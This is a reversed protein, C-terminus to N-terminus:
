LYKTSRSCHRPPRRPSRARTSATTRDFAEKIDQLCPYLDGFFEPVYESRVGKGHEGWLVGGHKRTLAVVADSIQRLM